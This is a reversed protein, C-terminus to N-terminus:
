AVKNLEIFKKFNEEERKPIVHVNKNEKKNNNKFYILNYHNVNLTKDKHLNQVLYNRQELSIDKDLNKIIISYKVANEEEKNKLIYYYLSENNGNLNLYIVNSKKYIKFLIKKMLEIEELSNEIYSYFKPLRKTLFDNNKIMEYLININNEINDNLFSSELKNYLENFFNFNYEIFNVIYKFEDNTKKPLSEEDITEVIKYIYNNLIKRLFRIQNLYVLIFEEEKRLHNYKKKNILNSKIKDIKDHKYVRDVISGFDILLNVLDKSLINENIYKKKAFFKIFSM